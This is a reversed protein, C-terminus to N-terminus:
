RRTVRWLEVEAAKATGTLALVAVLALPLHRMPIEKMPIRRSGAGNRRGSQGALARGQDRVAPNFTADFRRLSAGSGDLVTGGRIVLEAAM